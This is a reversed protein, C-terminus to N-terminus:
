VFGDDGPFGQVPSVLADDQRGLPPNKVPLSRLLVQEFITFIGTNAGIGLALTLVVVAAFGPSRGLSRLGCRLDQWLTRM